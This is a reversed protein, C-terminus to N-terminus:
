AAERLPWVWRRDATGIPFGGHRACAAVHAADQERLKDESVPPKVALTRAKQPERPPEPIVGERVLVSIRRRVASENCGIRKAMQRYGIRGISEAIFADHPSVRQRQPPGRRLRKSLREAPIGIEAGISSFTRGKARESVIYEYQEQTM